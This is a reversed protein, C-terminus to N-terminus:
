SRHTAHWKACRSVSRPEQIWRANWSNMNWRWRQSSKIKEKEKKKKKKEKSIHSQAHHAAVGDNRTATRAHGGITRRTTQTGGVRASKDMPVNECVVTTRPVRGVYQVKALVRVERTGICQTSVHSVCPSVLTIGKM